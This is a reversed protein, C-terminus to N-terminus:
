NATLDIYTLQSSETGSEGQISPKTQPSYSNNKKTKKLQALHM